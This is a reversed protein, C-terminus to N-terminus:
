RLSRFIEGGVFALGSEEEIRLLQNYKALREGRVISGIKIQGAGTGVALDAITTDETEGSRASVITWWGAGKADGLAEIAGTLTGVQNPKILIANASGEAIGRGLRDRNTVFLDDGIIQARRGLAAHLRRWGEWDDEALPDELSIIPYADLWRSLTEIMADADLDTPAQRGLRLWYRGERYFHTAAVDIGLAVEEGPRRGAAEIARLLIELATHNDALKPGFGGEDGVLAAEDGRRRLETGLARYVDVSWEAAQRFSRAGVPLTLFDQFEIQRGAHLGGSIMNVMPLPMSGPGAGLCQYLAKGTAAASAHAHAISTALTANAGLPGSELSADLEDLLRDVGEQDGLDRGVLAPRIHERVNSVARLVGRGGFRAPDGDRVELAEHSGTSAGCPAIGRGMVRGPGHIEVEVTPVGRSDLVERALVARIASM